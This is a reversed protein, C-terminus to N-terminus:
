TKIHNQLKKKNNGYNTFLELDIFSGSIEMNEVVVSHALFLLSEETNWEFHKKRKKKELSM